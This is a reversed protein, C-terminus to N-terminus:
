IVEGCLVEYFRNSPTLLMLANYVDPSYGFELDPTYTDYDAFSLWLDPSTHGQIYRCIALFRERSFACPFDYELAICHAVIAIEYMNHYPPASPITGNRSVAIQAYIIDPDIM